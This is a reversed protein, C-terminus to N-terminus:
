KAAEDAERPAVPSPAKAPQLPPQAVPRPDPRPDPNYRNMTATMGDTVWALAAEAARTEGQALTEAEAGPPTGLVYDIVQMRPHAPRGIGVRLRAFAPSSLHAIVSELGHQGAASGKERLRVRGLPLDLDDCVVLLDALPIKYFRLLPGVSRGSDNMFTQPKALIVKEGAVLGQALVANDRKGDWSWGQTAAVREVVRFGANHRTAAYQAGPNGLGVILKM